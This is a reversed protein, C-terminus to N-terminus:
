GTLISYAIRGDIIVTVPEIARIQDEPCTMYDRDIVVMDALKGPEISGKDKEEFEFYAPWVTYMKLAEERTIRQEPHLVQGNSM